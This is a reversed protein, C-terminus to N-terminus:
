RRMLKRAITMLQDRGLFVPAAAALYLATCLAVTSVFPLWGNARSVHVVGTFLAVTATTTALVRFGTDTMYRAYDIGLTRCSVLPNVIGRLVLMPIMLGIAAGLLSHTTAVLTASLVVNLVAELMASYLNFRIRDLAFLALVGTSQFLAVLEAVALLYLLPVATEFEPGVWLVIFRDGFAILGSYVLVGFFFSLRACWNFMSRLAGFDKVSGARMISPYLTAGIQEILKQAYQILMTAISYIAVAAPGLFFMVIVQGSQYVIQTASRTIFAPVGFRWIEGFRERSVLVTSIAMEPYFRYAFLLMTVALVANAGLIVWALGYVGWGARLVIVAAATRLLLVVLNIGNAVDFRDRASLVTRFIAIVFALWLNLAMVPLLFAVEALLEPPTKPFLVIFHMGLVLAVGLVLLSMASLFALSTSVVEGVRRDDRRALYHNIYRGVSSRVGLDVLGLYGILTNVLSWIGYVALSLSSIIFPTLFFAVIVEAVLGFWNALLNRAFV